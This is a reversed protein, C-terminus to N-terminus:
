FSVLHDVSPMNVITVIRYIVSMKLKLILFCMSSLRLSVKRREEEESQSVRPSSPM